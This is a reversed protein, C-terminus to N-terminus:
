IDDDLKRINVAITLAAKEAARCEIVHLADDSEFARADERDAVAEAIEACKQKVLANNPYKPTFPLVDNGDTTKGYAALDLARTVAPDNFVGAAHALAGIVQYLSYTRDDDVWADTLDDTLTSLVMEEYQSQAFKKARNIKDKDGINAVTWRNGLPSLGLWYDGGHGKCLTWELPKIKNKM